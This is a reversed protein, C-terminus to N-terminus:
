ADLGSRERVLPQTQAICPPDPPNGKAVEQLVRPRSRASPILRPPCGRHAEAEPAPDANDGAHAYVEAFRAHAQRDAPLAHPYVTPGLPRLAVMPAGPVPRKQVSCRAGRRIDRRARRHGRDPGRAGNSEAPRQYDRDLDDGRIKEYDGHKIPGLM